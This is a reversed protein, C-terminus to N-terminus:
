YGYGSSPKHHKKHHKHHKKHRATAPSAALGLIALAALAAGILRRARTIMSDHGKERRM